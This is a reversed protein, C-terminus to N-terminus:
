PVLGSLRVHTALLLKSNAKRSVLRYNNGKLCAGIVASVHGMFDGEAFCWGRRPTIHLSRLGIHMLYHLKLTCDFLRHGKWNTLSSQLQVHQVCADFLNM